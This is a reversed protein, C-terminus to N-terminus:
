RPNTPEFGADVKKLKKYIRISPLKIVKNRSIIKSMSRGKIRMVCWTKTVKIGRWNVNWTLMTLQKFDGHSTMRNQRWSSISWDLNKRGVSLSASAANEAVRAGLRRGMLVDSVYYKMFGIIRGRTLHAMSWMISVGLRVGAARPSRLSAIFSGRTCCAHPQSNSFTSLLIVM